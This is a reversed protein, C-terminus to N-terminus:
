LGPPKLIASSSRRALFSLEEIYQDFRPILGQDQQAFFAKVASVMGRFAVIEPDSSNTQIKEKANQFKLKMANIVRTSTPLSANTCIPFDYPNAQCFYWQDLPDKLKQFIKNFRATMGQLPGEDEKSFMLEFVRFEESFVKKASYVDNPSMSDTINDLRKIIELLIETHFWYEGGNVFATREELGNNEGKTLLSGYLRDVIRQIRSVAVASFIEDLHMTAAYMTNLAARVYEYKKQNLQMLLHMEKGVIEEIVDKPTLAPRKFERGWSGSDYIFEWQSYVSSSNCIMQYVIKTQSIFEEQAKQDCSETAIKWDENLVLRASIFEQNQVAKFVDKTRPACLNHESKAYFGGYIALALYVLLSVKSM